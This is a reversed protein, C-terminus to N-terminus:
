GEAHDPVALRQKIRRFKQSGRLEDGDFLLVELDLPGYILVLRTCDSFWAPSAAKTEVVPPSQSGPASGPAPTRASRAADPVPEVAPGPTPGVPQAVPESAPSEERDVWYENRVSASVKTRYFSFRDEGEKRFYLRNGPRIALFGKGDQSVFNGNPLTFPGAAAQGRLDGSFFAGAALFFPTLGLFFKM